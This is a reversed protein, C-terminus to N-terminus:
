LGKSAEASLALDLDDEPAPAAKKAASKKAKPSEDVVKYEGEFVNMPTGQADACEEFDERNSFASQYIFVQGSPTHKLYRDAM